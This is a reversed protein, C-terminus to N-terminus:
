SSSFPQEDLNHYWCKLVGDVGECGGRYWCDESTGLEIIDDPSLAVTSGLTSM